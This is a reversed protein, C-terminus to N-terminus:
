CILTFTAGPRSVELLGPTTCSASKRNPRVAYGPVSRFVVDGDNLPQLETEARINREM